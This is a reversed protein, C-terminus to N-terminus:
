PNAVSRMLWGSKHAQAHVTVAVGRLHLVKQIFEALLCVLYNQRNASDTWFRVEELVKSTCDDPNIGSARGRAFSGLWLYSLPLRGELAHANDFLYADIWLVTHQWSDYAQALAAGSLSCHLQWVV